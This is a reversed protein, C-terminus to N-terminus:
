GGRVARVRSAYCCFGALLLFAIGPVLMLAALVPPNSQFVGVRAATVIGWLWNVLLLASVAYTLFTGWQTRLAIGIAAALTASPVLAFWWLQYEFAQGFAFLTYALMLLVALPRRFATSRRSLVLLTLLFLCGFCLLWFSVRHTHCIWDTWSAEPALQCGTIQLQVTGFFAAFLALPLLAATKILRADM